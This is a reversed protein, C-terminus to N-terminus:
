KIVDMATNGGFVGEDLVTLLYGLVGPILTINFFLLLSFLVGEAESGGMLVFCIAGISERMGLGSITIPINGMLIILPLTVVIFANAGLSYLTLIALIYNVLYYALALLTTKSMARRDKCLNSFSDAHMEVDEYKINFRKALIFIIKKNVLIWTSLIAVLASILIMYNFLPYKNFFSIVTIISLLSLIFIDVLKEMLITSITVSKKEDLYYARVLEGVRGPTILGYFVGILLVRFLNVFSKDIGLSKLLVGWRYTRIIYLIPVFFM